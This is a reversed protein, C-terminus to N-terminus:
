RVTSRQTSSVNISFNRFRCYCLGGFGQKNLPKPTKKIKCVLSPKGCVIKENRLCSDRNYLYGGGIGCAVSSISCVFAQRFFWRIRCKVFLFLIQIFQMVKAPSRQNAILPQVCHSLSLSFFSALVSPLDRM